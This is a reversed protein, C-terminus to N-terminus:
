QLVEKTFDSDTNGVIVEREVDIIFLYIAVFTVAVSVWLIIGGLVYVFFMKPLEYTEYTPTGFLLPTFFVLVSFISFLIISM